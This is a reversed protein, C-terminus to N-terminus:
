AKRTFSAGVATIMAAPWPVRMREALGFTRCSTQPRGIIAQGTMAAARPRHAGPRRSRRAPGRCRGRRERVPGLRDHLGLGVARAAREAGGGVHNALRLRDHDERAIM